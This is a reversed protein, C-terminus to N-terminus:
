MGFHVSGRLERLNGREHLVRWKRLKYPSLPRLVHEVARLLQLLFDPGDARIRVTFSDREDALADRLEYFTHGWGNREQADRKSM